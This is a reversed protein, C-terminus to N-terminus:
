IVIGEGGFGQSALLVLADAITVEGVAAILETALLAGSIGARVVSEVAVTGM